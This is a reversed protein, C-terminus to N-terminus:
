EVWEREALHQRWLVCNIMRRKGVRLSPLVAKKVWAKAMDTTVGNRAAWVEPTEVDPLPAVLAQDHNETEMTQTMGASNLTM